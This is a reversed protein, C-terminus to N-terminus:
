EGNKRYKRRGAKEGFYTGILVAAVPGAISLIAMLLVETTKIM